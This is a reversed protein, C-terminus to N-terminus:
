IFDANAGIDQVEMEFQDLLQLNLCRVKIKLYASVYITKKEIRM